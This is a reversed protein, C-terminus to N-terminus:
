LRTPLMEETDIKKTRRSSVDRSSAAGCSPRPMPSPGPMLMSSSCRRQHGALTGAAQGRPHLLPSVTRMSSIRKITRGPWPRTAHQQGLGVVRCRGIQDCGGSTCVGGSGQLHHELDDAPPGLRNRREARQDLVTALQPYRYM